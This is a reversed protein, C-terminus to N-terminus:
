GTGADDLAVRVGMEPLQRLLGLASSDDLRRIGCRFCPKGANEGAGPCRRAHTTITL